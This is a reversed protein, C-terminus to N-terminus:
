ARPELIRTQRQPHVNSITTRGFSAVIFTGTQRNTALMRLRKELKHFSM